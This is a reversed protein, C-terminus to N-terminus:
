KTESAIWSLFDKNGKQIPLTIICPCTYSHLSKIRKIAKDILAAKTKAIILAEKDDQIKGEWRYISNINDIINVCAVLREKVLARGMKAAEEKDKATIYILNFKCKM